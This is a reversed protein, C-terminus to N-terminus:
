AILSATLAVAPVIPALAIFWGLLDNQASLRPFAQLVGICGLAAALSLLAVRLAIRRALVSGKLVGPEPALGSIRLLMVRELGLSASYGLVLILSMAFTYAAFDETSLVRTLFWLSGVGAIMGVIRSFLVGLSGSFYMKATNGQAEDTM